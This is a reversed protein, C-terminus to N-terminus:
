TTVKEGVEPTSSKIERIIAKLEDMDLVGTVLHGVSSNDFSALPIFARTYVQEILWLGSLINLILFGIDGGMALGTVSIIYSLMSCFTVHQVANHERFWSFVAEIQEKRM